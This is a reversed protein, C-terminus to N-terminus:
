NAKKKGSPESTRTETEKAQSQVPKENLQRGKARKDKFYRWSKSVGATLIAKASQTLSPWNITQRVVKVVAENISKDEAIRQDFSGGQTKGGEESEKMMDNFERGPIQFKAQYHTYLRKRFQKPLRQVMNGRRQPDMDQEIKCNANKDEMWGETSTKSDNFSINPLDDILPLYLQRFNTMQNDVINAVKRPNEARMAMRPDGM